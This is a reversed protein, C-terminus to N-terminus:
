SIAVGTVADLRVGHSRKGQRVLTCCAARLSDARKLFDCALARMAVTDSGTKEGATRIMPDM